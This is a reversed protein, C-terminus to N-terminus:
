TTQQPFLHATLNLTNWFAKIKAKIFLPWFLDKSLHFVKLADLKNTAYVSISSFFVFHFQM